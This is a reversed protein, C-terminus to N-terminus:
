RSAWDVSSTWVVDVDDSIDYYDRALGEFEEHDSDFAFSPRMDDWPYTWPIEVAGDVEQRAVEAEVHTTWAHNDGVKDLMEFALAPAVVLGSGLLAAAALWPGPVAAVSSGLLVRGSAVVRALLSVAWVLLLLEGFAWGRGPLLGGVVPLAVAGAVGGLVAIDVPEIRARWLVIAVAAAAALGAAVVLGDLPLGGLARHGVGLVGLLALAGAAPVLARPPVGRRACWLVASAVVLGLLPVLALVIFALAVDARALLSQDGAQRQDSDAARSWLGPTALKLGVAVALPALLAVLHRRRDPRRVAVVVTAAAVGAVVGALVEHFLCGVVLPVSAAVAWRRAVPRGAAARLVPVLGVTVLFLGTLYGSSAAGFLVLQGILRRDLALLVFPTVAALVPLVYWPLRARDAAPVLLSLLVLITPFLSACALAVYARAAPEGASAVLSFVSDAIRGNQVVLDHRLMDAVDGPTALRGGRLIFSLDDLSLISRSLVLGWFALTTTFLAVVLLRARRTGMTGRSSTATDTDGM